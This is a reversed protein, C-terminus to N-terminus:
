IVIASSKAYNVKLGSAEGFANLILQVTELDQRLPKFFLAVDDAFISIRQMSTCGSLTSLLGEEEARRVLLTLVAMIM